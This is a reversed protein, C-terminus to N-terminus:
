RTKESKWRLEGNANTTFYRDIISQPVACGPAGPPPGWQGNIPWTRNRACLRLRDSWRQAEPDGACQTPPYDLWTRKNLYTDAQQVFGDRAKKDTLYVAIAATAERREDDGMKAWREAAKAKGRKNPYAAWFEAFGDPYPKPAQPKRSGDEQIELASYRAGDAPHAISDKLQPNEKPNPPPNGGTTAVSKRRRRIEAPPVHVVTPPNEGTTDLRYSDHAERASCKANKLWNLFGPFSYCDSTPAGDPRFRKRREIYGASELAALHDRVQRESMSAEEAILKQGPFCEGSENDLREALLLFLLKQPASDIRQAKAWSFAENSM